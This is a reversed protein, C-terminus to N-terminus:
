VGSEGGCLVCESLRSDQAFKPWFDGFLGWFAHFIRCFNALFHVDYGDTTFPGKLSSGPSGGERVMSWPCAPTPQPTPSPLAPEVSTIACRHQVWTFDAVIEVSTPDPWSLPAASATLYGDSTIVAGPALPGLGVDEPQTRTRNYRVGGVFLQRITTPLGQPAPTEWLTRHATPTDPVKSWNGLVMGGDVVTAAEGHGGAGRWVVRFRGRVGSDRKDLRLGGPPASLRGPPLQVVLDGVVVGLNEALAARAQIHRRVHDRTTRLSTGARIILPLAPDPNSDGLFSDSPLKPIESASPSSQPAAMVVSAVILPWLSHLPAM